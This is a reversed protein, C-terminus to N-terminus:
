APNDVEVTVVMGLVLYAKRKEGDVWELLIEKIVILTIADHWEKEYKADASLVDQMWIM